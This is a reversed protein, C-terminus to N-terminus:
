TVFLSTSLRKGKRRVQDRWATTLSSTASWNFNGDFFDILSIRILPLVQAGFFNDSFFFEGGRGNMTTLTSKMWM